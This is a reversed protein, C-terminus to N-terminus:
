FCMEFRVDAQETNTTLCFFITVNKRSQQQNYNLLRCCIYLQYKNISFGTYDDYEEWAFKSELIIHLSIHVM